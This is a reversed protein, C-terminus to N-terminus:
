WGGDAGSIEFEVTKARRHRINRMRVHSAGQILIHRGSAGVLSRYYKEVEDRFSAHNFPGRYHAGRAPGVEIPGTEFDDGVVQKINVYLGEVRRGDVELTFFVRSVMHEDDSGYDQSDQICENFTVKATM